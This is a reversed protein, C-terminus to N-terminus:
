RPHGALWQRAFPDDPRVALLREYTRRAEALRGQRDYLGALNGHAQWNDPQIRLM